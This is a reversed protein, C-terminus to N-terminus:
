TAPADKKGGAARRACYAAIARSMCDATGDGFRDINGKFRADGAYMQGLGSLIEETCTYYHRTICAQWREVLERVRADDPALGRVGAFERMLAEMEERAEIAKVQTRSQERLLSEEYAPTGGWRERVEGAYQRKMRELEKMDFVELEARGDGQMARELRAIMADLRGRKQCLLGHQRRMAERMDYAPSEMIQRIEGLSFGLERFFLIQELRLLAAEDYLRYGAQTVCSPVLLGIRDYHRLTRVSIGARRAAEGIRWGDRGIRGDDQAM